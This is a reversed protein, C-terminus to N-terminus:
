ASHAPSRQVTSYQATDHRVLFMMEPGWLQWTWPDLWIIIAPCLLCTVTLFASYIFRFCVCLVGCCLVACWLVSVVLLKLGAPIL